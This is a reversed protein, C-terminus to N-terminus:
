QYTKKKWFLTKYARDIVGFFHKESRLVWEQDFKRTKSTWNDRKVPLLQAVPTGRPIIGTFGKRIFFPFKIANTYGDTDVFGSFTLFPLDFRNAPQTCYLSYGKPTQISFGNEWKFVTSCYGEPIPVGPYQEANHYTILGATTRWWIEPDGTESIQVQVDDALCVMYGVIMADLFPTCRKITGNTGQSRPIVRLSEEGNVFQPISKYWAPITKSAPIPVEYEIDALRTLPIFELFNM